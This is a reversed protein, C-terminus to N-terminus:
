KAEQVTKIVDALYSDLAERVISSRDLKRDTTHAIKLLIASDQEKTIYFSKQVLTEQNKKLSNNSSEKKLNTKEYDEQSKTLM